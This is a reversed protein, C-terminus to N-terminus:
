GPLRRSIGKSDCLQRGIKWNDGCFFGGFGSVLQFQLAFSEPASAEQCNRSM